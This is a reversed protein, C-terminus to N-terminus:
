IGPKVFHLTKLAKIKLLPFDMSNLSKRLWHLGQVPTYIWVLTCTITHEGKSVKNEAYITQAVSRHNVECSDTTITKEEDPKFSESELQQQLLYM